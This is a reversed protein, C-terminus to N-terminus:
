GELRVRSIFQGPKLPGQRIPFPVTKKRRSKEAQASKERAAEAQAKEWTEVDSERCLKPRGISGIQRMRERATREKCHWRECLDAVGYLKEM